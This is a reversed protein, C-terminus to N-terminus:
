YVDFRIASRWLANRQFALTRGVYPYTRMLDLNFDPKFAAGGVVRRLSGEDSYLCQLDSNFAIREAMM